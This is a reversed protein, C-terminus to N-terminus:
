SVGGHPPSLGLFAGHEVLLLKLERGRSSAVLLVALWVALWEPKM